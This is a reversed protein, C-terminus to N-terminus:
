SKYIPQRCISCKNGTNVNKLLNNTFCGICVIHNCSPIVINTCELDCLCIPCEDRLNDVNDCSKDHEEDDDDCNHIMHEVVNSYKQLNYTLSNVFQVNDNTVNTDIPIIEHDLNNIIIPKIHRSFIPKHPYEGTKIYRNVSLEMNCKNIYNDIDIFEVSSM